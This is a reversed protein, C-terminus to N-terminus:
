HISGAAVALEAPAEAYRAFTMSYAGRGRTLSRLTTAYGFMGVLPVDARILQGGTSDDIGRLVGRRRALDGSVAGVFQQPTAVRVSMVPELLAPQARACGERFAAAAAFKFAMGTSEIDSGSLALVTVKLDIVPYGAIPGSEMQERVGREAAPLFGDATSGADPRSLIECGRGAQLPEIRLTVRAQYTGTAGQCTFQGDQEVPRRVTERYAVQPRGPTTEIGFDRRLREVVIELHLEGMGSIITQGSEHDTLVRFSPDERVLMQLAAGLKSQDIGTKPELALSIVPEPPQITELIIIDQEDVLSDGTTVDQLGAAAAIDGARVETIQERENAHMQLLNGIKEPQKKGPNFVTQGSRLMGSYVRFFTLDGAVPDTTVKFALAAFPEDDSARRSTAEGNRGTGPVPRKDVPSPLYDIVADLMSQIGKNRFASGCTVVVVEGRLTRSRLGHRIDDAPLDGSDLYKKLLVEDGEAAAEVMRERWAQALARLERPIGILQYRMGQTSDEWRVAQMRVLDVLGTFGEEAGIPLQVPVPNAGLHDKIQGVVGMFDAGARDMKNVFAIRPVGHRDAQRWVTESQPEVGGVACFLSVGGDLVRLSREVEITFDVHGPTDIINIRHRPYQQQMGSWFCTTAASTITIGREQEQQMWDMVAAGDHVEGMRQSVGTYFLIRETTTTKGADIHASIGINRYHEIPTTRPM